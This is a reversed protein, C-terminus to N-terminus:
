TNRTSLLALTERIVDAHVAVALHSFNDAKSSIRQVIM